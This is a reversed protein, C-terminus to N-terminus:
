GRLRLLMMAIDEVGAGASLSQPLCRPLCAARAADGGAAVAGRVSTDQAAYQSFRYYNMAPM